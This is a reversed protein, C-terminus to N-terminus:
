NDIKQIAFPNLLAYGMRFTYWWEHVRRKKDENYEWAMNERNQFLIPKFANKANIYYWDDNTAAQFPNVIIKLRGAYPNNVQASGDYILNMESGFTTEFINKMHTPILAVPDIIPNFPLNDSDKEAYMAAEALNYDNTLTSYTYATSLTGTQLNNITNSGTDINPRSTAFFATGDFANANAELLAQSKADKFIKYKDAMGMAFDKVSNGMTEKSDDFIDFDMDFGNYFTSNEVSFYKMQSDSFGIRDLFQKIGPLLMFIPYLEKNSKSPNEKIFENFVSIPDTQILKLFELKTGKMVSIPSNFM